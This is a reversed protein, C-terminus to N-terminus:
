SQRGRTFVYRQVLQRWKEPVSGLMAGALVRQGYWRIMECQTRAISKAIARSAEPLELLPQLADGGECWAEVARRACSLTPPPNYDFM